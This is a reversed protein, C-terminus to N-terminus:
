SPCENKVAESIPWLDIRDGLKVGALHNIAVISSILCQRRSPNRTSSNRSVSWAPNNCSFKKAMKPPPSVRGNATWKVESCQIAGLRILTGVCGPCHQDSRIVTQANLM